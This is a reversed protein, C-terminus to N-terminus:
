VERVKIKINGPSRQLDTIMYYDAWNDGFPEVTMEGATNSFQIIDGTELNYGKAPNVIDCSIIKKIDGFINMYYDAYGDNPDNGGVNTNGPKNVNMDLEVNSINEKAKINWKGRIDTTSNVSTQSSIYTKLAPHKQYKLEMKTLLESFPTNTIKLNNIDNNTLTQAVDSSSYSDKIFWYSGSGDARFKFLFCFEKQIQELIEKLEVPELVWWRINWASTIRAAEIDLNDDYNYINADTDDFGTFRALMDRHAELGTDATGSGGTFSNTFGDEGYYLFEQGDFGEKITVTMQIDKIRSFGSVSGSGTYQAKSRFAISNGIPDSVSVSSVTGSQTAGTNADINVQTSATTGIGYYLEMKNAIAGGNNTISNEWTFEITGNGVAEGVLNSPFYIIMTSETDATVSSYSKEAYTATDTDYANSPNSWQANDAVGRFIVTRQQLFKTNLMNTGETSVTNGAGSVLTPFFRDCEKDYIEPLYSHSSVAVGGNSFRTATGGSQNGVMPLPRLAYSTLDTFKYGSKTNGTFDGYFVPEWIKSSGTTQENPIELFDWPRQETLQLTISSDDHSVDILRGSYIQLCNSLTTDGNLQSYVRVERNIYQRTGFLLEASFDDGEYQFNVVNLSINGTKATSNALNISSRISPISTIAGHYFVDDVTTDALALPKFNNWYLPDNNDHTAVTTSMAGRIVTLTHTSISVIQMIEDDVKIFDGAAFVTGDDVDVATESDDLAENLLNASGGSQLVADWGGEGSGQADGNFFGLQVIWNERINGTKSANSYATPLTLSM